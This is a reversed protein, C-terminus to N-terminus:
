LYACVKATEIQLFLYLRTQKVAVKKFVLRNRKLYKSFRKRDKLDTQVMSKDLKSVLLYGDYVDAYGGIARHTGLLLKSSADLSSKTPDSLFPEFQIRTISDVSLRRLQTLIPPKNIMIMLNNILDLEQDNEM